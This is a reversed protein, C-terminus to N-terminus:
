ECSHVSVPTRAQPSAKCTVGGAVSVGGVVGVVKVQSKSGEHRVAVIVAVAVMVGVVVTM